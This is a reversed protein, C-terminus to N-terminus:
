HQYIQRMHSLIVRVRVSIYGRRVLGLGIPSVRVRVRCECM